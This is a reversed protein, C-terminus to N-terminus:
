VSVCTSLKKETYELQIIIKLKNNSSDQKRSSTQKNSSDQKSYLDQKNSSDQIISGDHNNLFDAQTSADSEPSSKVCFRKKYFALVLNDFCLKWGARSKKYNDQTIIINCKPCNKHKNM